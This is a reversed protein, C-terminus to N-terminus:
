LSFVFVMSATSNNKLEPAYAPPQKSGVLVAVYQKSNVSYTVPPANIGTGLNISWAEKLTKADYAALTGDPLGVFVLNGATALVGGYSPYDLKAALKTEGTAPDIAKLSGFLREPFAPQGGAFRERPKVTGGQDAFDEQQKTTLKNCGEKATVFLLGLEPNYASPEWNKGGIISPCLRDGNVNARSGHSGPRYVQVDANPDYNLPRGTKPDLGPTWNLEDVYQKGAVFSGNVRDLAYYFGNRAAHVVLKRDEGNVKANIIPHESIEDFDYPDNPTYQFGWKIEGNTPNLALVSAAWKNDGPRYEPDWDPGANGVGQYITDTDPDYTATEWISGGGHEWHDKGDKWTENGPESKGPITYTRWLQQGTNLDTGDIFGRIGYEGGATGVIAVDRVVLPALTLTEGIDPNAIKREWVKEGTAKNIAFLRGDLSISIM